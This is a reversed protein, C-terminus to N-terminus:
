GKILDVLAIYSSDIETEQPSASKVELRVAEYLTHVQELSAVREEGSLLLNHVIYSEWVNDLRYVDQNLRNTAHGLQKSMHRKMLQSIIIYLVDFCTSSIDQGLAKLASEHM